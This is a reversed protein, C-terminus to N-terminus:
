PQEMPITPVWLNPYTGISWDYRDTGCKTPLLAPNQSAIRALQQKLIRVDPCATKRRKDAMKQIQGTWDIGRVNTAYNYVWDYFRCANAVAVPSCREYPTALEDMIQNRNLFYTEVVGSPTTLGIWANTPADPCGKWLFDSLDYKKGTLPDTQLKWRRVSATVPKESFLVCPRANRALRDAERGDTMAYFEEAPSVYCYPIYQNTRDERVPESGYLRKATETEVSAWNNGCNNAMNRFFNYRTPKGYSFAKLLMTNLEYAGPGSFGRDFSNRGIALKPSHTWKPHPNPDELVLHGESNLESLRAQVSIMVSLTDDVMPSRWGATALDDSASPALAKARNARMVSTTVPTIGRHSGGTLTNRPRWLVQPFLHIIYLGTPDKIMQANENEYMQRSTCSYQSRWCYASDFVESEAARFEHGIRDIKSRLSCWGGVCAVHKDFTEQGVRINNKETLTNYPSEGNRELWCEPRDDFVTNDYPLSELTSSVTKEIGNIRGTMGYKSYINHYKKTMLILADRCSWKATISLNEEWSWVAGPDNILNGRSAGLIKNTKFQRAIEDSIAQINNFYMGDLNAWAIDIKNENFFYVYIAKRPSVDELLSFAGKNGGELFLFSRGTFPFTQSFALSCFIALATFVRNM